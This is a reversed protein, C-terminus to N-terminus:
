VKFEWNRGISLKNIATRGLKGNGRYSLEQRTKRAQKHNQLLKCTRFQLERNNKFLDM